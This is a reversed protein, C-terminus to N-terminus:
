ANPGAGQKPEQKKLRAVIGLFAWIALIINAWPQPILAVIEGPLVGINAVVFLMATAIAHLQISFWRWSHRWGACFWDDLKDLM